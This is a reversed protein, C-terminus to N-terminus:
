LAASLPVDAVGKKEWQGAEPYLQFLANDVAEVVTSYTFDGFYRRDMEEAYDDPNDLFKTGEEVIRELRRFYAARQREAKISAVDDRWPTRKAVAYWELSLEDALTLAEKGIAALEKGVYLAPMRDVTSLRYNEGRIVYDYDELNRQTCVITQPLGDITCAEFTEGADPGITKTAALEPYHEMATGPLYEGSDAGYFMQYINQPRKMM